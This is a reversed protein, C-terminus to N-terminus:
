IRKRLHTLTYTPPRETPSLAHIQHVVLNLRSSPALRSTTLVTLTSLGQIHPRCRSIISADTLSITSLALNSERRDHFSPFLFTLSLPQQTHINNLPTIDATVALSIGSLIGFIYFSNEPMQRCRRFVQLHRPFVFPMNKCSFDVRPSRPDLKGAIEPFNNFKSFKM